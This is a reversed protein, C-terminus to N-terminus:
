RGAPKRSAPRRLALRCAGGECPVLGFRNRAVWRYVKDGLWRVGPVYLLPALPMTLPLRWAIWRLAEFGAHARTRDPTVVHMEELLRQQDLPAAGATLHEGDRASQFHLKHRWDLRRLHAVSRRCFGCEDDYLVVSQDARAGPHTTM